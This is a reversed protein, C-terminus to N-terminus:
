QHVIVNIKIMQHQNIQSLRFKKAELFGLTGAEYNKLDCIKASDAFLKALNESM